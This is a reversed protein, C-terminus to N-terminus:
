LLVHGHVRRGTPHLRGGAMPACVDARRDFLIRRVTVPMAGEVSSLATLKDFRM